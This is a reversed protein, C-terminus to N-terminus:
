LVTKISKTAALDAYLKNVQEAHTLYLRTRLSHYKGTKSPQIHISAIDFDPVHSSLIMKVDILLQESAEGIISIPYDMPFDWLEPNKIDTPKSM